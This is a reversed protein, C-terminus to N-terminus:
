IGEIFLHFCNSQSQIYGRQVNSVVCRSHRTCGCCFHWQDCGLVEPKAPIFVDRNGTSHSDRQLGLHVSLQQVGQLMMVSLITATPCSHETLCAAVNGDDGQVEGDEGAQVSLHCFPCILSSHPCFLLKSVGYIRTGATGIRPRPSYM